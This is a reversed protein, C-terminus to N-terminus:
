SDTSKQFLSCIEALYLSTIGEKLQLLQARLPSTFKEPYHKFYLSIVLIRGLQEGKGLWYTPEFLDFLGIAQLSPILQDISSSIALIENRYEETEERSLLYNLRAVNNLTAAITGKRASGSEGTYPNISINSDVGAPLISEPTAIIHELKM